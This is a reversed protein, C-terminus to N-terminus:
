TAVESTRIDSLRESVVQVTESYALDPRVSFNVDLTQGVLATVTRAQPKYQDLTVRIEYTGPRLGALTYRGEPDTTADRSYGSDTERATVTVGPLVGTSDTVTGQVTATSLQAAAPVAAAVIMLLLLRVRRM